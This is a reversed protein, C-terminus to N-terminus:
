IPKIRGNIALSAQTSPWSQALSEAYPTDFNRRCRWNSSTLLLRVAAQQDWGVGAVAGM